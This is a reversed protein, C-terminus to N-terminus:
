RSNRSNSQSMRWFNIRNIPRNNDYSRILAQFKKEALRKKFALKEQGKNVDILRRFDPFRMEEFYYGNRCYNNLVAIRSENQCEIFLAQIGELLFNESMQPLLESHYIGKGEKKLIELLSPGEIKHKEYIINEIEAYKLPEREFLDSLHDFYHYASRTMIKHIKEYEAHREINEISPDVYISNMENIKM